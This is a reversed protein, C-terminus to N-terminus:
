QEAMYRKWASVVPPSKWLNDLGRIMLYIASLMKLADGGLADYPIRDNFSFATQGAICLSFSIEIAAYIILKNLKLLFFVISITTILVAGVITRSVAPSASTLMRHIISAAGASLLLGIAIFNVTMSSTPTYPIQTGPNYWSSIYVTHDADEPAVIRLRILVARTWKFSLIVSIVGGLTATTWTGFAILRHLFDFYTVEHADIV